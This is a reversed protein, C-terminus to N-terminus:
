VVRADDYAEEREGPPHEPAQREVGRVLLLGAAWRGTISSTDREIPGAPVRITTPAKTSM